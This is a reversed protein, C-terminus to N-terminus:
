GEDGFAAEHVRRAAETADEADDTDLGLGGLWALREHTAEAMSRSLGVDEFMTALEVMEASRREARKPYGPFSYDLYDVIWGHRSAYMERLPEEIGLATASLLLDTALANTGKTMGGYCLKLGSAQGVADGLVRTTLGFDELAAAAEARPGSFNFVARSLDAAPGIICGDVVDVAGDVEEAIAEVTSPAIANMEALLATEGAAEAGATVARAVEHVVDSPVVSLVLDAERVVAEHSGVDEIGAAEANARTEDSRGTLTTVVRLGNASVTRAISTGMEGPSLVGITGLGGDDGSM